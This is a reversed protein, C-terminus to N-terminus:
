SGQVVRTLHLRGVLPVRTETFLQRASSPQEWLGTGALM